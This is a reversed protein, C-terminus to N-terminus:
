VKEMQGAPIKWRDTIRNNFPNVEYIYNVHNTNAPYEERVQEIQKDTLEGYTKYERYKAHQNKTM